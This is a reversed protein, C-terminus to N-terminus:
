LIGRMKGVIDFAEDVDENTWTMRAKALAELEPKTFQKPIYAESFTMQALLEAKKM